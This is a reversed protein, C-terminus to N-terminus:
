PTPHTAQHREDLLDDLDRHYIHATGLDDRDLAAQISHAVVACDRDIDTTTRQTM